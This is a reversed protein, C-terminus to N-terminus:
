KDEMFKMGTFFGTMLIKSDEAPTNGLYDVNCIVNHLICDPCAINKCGKEQVKKARKIIENRTPM